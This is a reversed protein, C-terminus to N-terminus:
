LQQPSSSPNNRATSRLSISGSAQATTTRESAGMSIVAVGVGVIDHQSM